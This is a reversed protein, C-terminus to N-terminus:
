VTQLEKILQSKSMNSRGKIDEKKAKEYLEERTTDRYLAELLDDKDMKSRGDIDKQKAEEYLEEKTLKYYDRVSSSSSNKSSSGSNKNSTTNNSSSNKHKTNPTNDTRKRLENILESKSMKSRGSIGEKTAIDYIEETSHNNYLAKILEEKDMKSRGDIELERAKQHLEDIHYEHYNLGLYKNDTSDVATNEKYDTKGLMKKEPKVSDPAAPVTNVKEDFKIKKQVTEGTAKNAPISKGEVSESFKKMEEKEKNEEKKKMEKSAINM